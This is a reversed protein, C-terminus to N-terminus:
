FIFNLSRREEELWRRLLHHNVKKVSIDNVFDNQVQCYVDAVDNDVYLINKERNGCFSFYEDNKKKTSNLLNECLRKMSFASVIIKNM